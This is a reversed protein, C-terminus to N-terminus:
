ELGGGLALNLTVQSNLRALQNAALALEASRRREQADLWVNLAVAGNRYRVEYLREVRQAAALSRDLEEGQLALNRRASLANEVDALATYLTQRFGVVAAEYGAQSLANSIKMKNVQLFPLSLGAGLTAYPNSLVSGLVQSASGLLGTLTLQPYYSARTADADALVERLRLEAARLDPRRGLLDAPLGAQVEPLLGGPLAQPEAPMVRALGAEGPAADFLIALANRAEVRQQQLEALAARQSAVSREAESAELSSVAGARYQADILQRTREAYAVSQEGSAIRQNLYGLEWYLSAVTGALSLAASQRDQETAQAAWDAASSLSALRGWLDIEWGVSLGVSHSRSTTGGGDLSRQRQASVSGGVSPLRDAETLDAQLRAQRVRLAAVALDNNRAFAAEVLADLRPDGFATWWRDTVAAAGPEATPAHAAQSWQAPVSAAPPEYPTRLSSCGALLGLAMALALLTRRPRPSLAPSHPSMSM